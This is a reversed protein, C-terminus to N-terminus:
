LIKNLFTNHVDLQNIKEDRSVAVTLVLWVTTAKVVLSFHKQSILERMSLLIELLWVLKIVSLMVM